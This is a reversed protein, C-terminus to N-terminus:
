DGQISVDVQTKGFIDDVTQLFTKNEHAGWSVTGSNPTTQGLLFYFMNDYSLAAVQLYDM